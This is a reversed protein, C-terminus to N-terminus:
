ARPADVRSVLLERGRFDRWCGDGCRALWAACHQGSVLYSVLALSDIGLELAAALAAEPDPVGAVWPLPEGRRWTEVVTAYTALDPSEVWLVDGVM